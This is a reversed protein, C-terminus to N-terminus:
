YEQIALLQNFLLLANNGNSTVFTITQSAEDAPGKSIATAWPNPSGTVSTNIAAIVQDAGKTFSPADNVATGTFTFTNAASYDTGDSAQWNILFNSNFDAAPQFTLNAFDAALIETATTIATGSLRLVGQTATPLSTFRIKNLPDGNADSFNGTFNAASFTFTNDEIYTIGGNTIVPATNSPTLTITSTNNASNLDNQGGSVIATNAYSGASNVKATITMSASNGPSIGTLSNINWTGTATGTDYIFTGATPSTNSLYTFGAPLADTVSITSASTPGNNTATLTFIVNSGKAPTTTNATKVISLDSAPLSVGMTIGDHAATDASGLTVIFYLKFTITTINTGTVLVSGSANDAGGDRTIITPSVSFNTSGSLKSLTQGTGQLEYQLHYKNSPSGGGIGGIQIIPNNVPTNFTLTLDAYFVKAGSSLTSTNNTYVFAGFNTTPSIGLGVNTELSSYDGATAGGGVDGMNRFVDDGGGFNVRRTSGSVNNTLDFRVTVAPTQTAFTTGGPNNTNKLFTATITSLQGTGSASSSNFEM